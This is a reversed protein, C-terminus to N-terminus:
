NVTVNKVYGDGEIEYQTLKLNPNNASIKIYYKTGTTTAMHSVMSQETQM